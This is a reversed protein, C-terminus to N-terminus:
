RRRRVALLGPMAFAAMATGPAPVNINVNFDSGIDGAWFHGFLDTHNGLALKGNPAFFQGYVVSRRSFNVTNDNAGIDFSGALIQAGANTGIGFECDNNLSFGSDIRLITQDTCHIVVEKGANFDRLDYVGAGLNLISDDQARVDRYVGPALTMTTNSTVTVDSASATIARGPTFPLTPLTEPAIIPGGFSLPGSNRNTQLTPNSYENAYVDWVFVDSGGLSMSDAVVQTGQSMVVTHSSGGGGMHLLLDPNGPSPDLRNVGVNGGLIFGRTVDADRGKFSLENYAFLVYTNIDRSLAAEALPAALGVTCLLSAVIAGHRSM